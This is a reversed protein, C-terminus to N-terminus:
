AARHGIPRRLGLEGLVPHYTQQGQTLTAYESGDDVSLFPVRIWQDRRRDHTRSRLLAVQVKLEDRGTSGQLARM